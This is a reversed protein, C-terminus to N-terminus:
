VHMIYVYMCYHVGLAVTRLAQVHEERYRQRPRVGVIVERSRPVGPCEQASRPVGPAMRVAM